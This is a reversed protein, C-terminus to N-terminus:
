GGPNLVGFVFRLGDRKREILGQSQLEAVSEAELGNTRRKQPKQATGSVQHM